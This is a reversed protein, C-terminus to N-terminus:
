LPAPRPNADDCHLVQCESQLSLIASNGFLPGWMYEFVRGSWFSGVTTVALWMRIREYFAKPHRLIRERSVLLTSCCPAAVREPVPGLEASMLEEWADKYHKSQNYLWSGVGLQEPRAPFLMSGTFSDDTANMYNLNAFPLDWQLKRLVPVVDPMHWAYQHGHLFVMSAPLDDYFDVIFTFYALAENGRFRIPHLANDDLCQYVASPVNGFFVNVWSVDEGCRAVVIMKDLNSNPDWSYRSTAM